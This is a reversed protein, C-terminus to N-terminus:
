FHKGSIRYIPIQKQLKNSGWVDYYETFKLYGHSILYQKAEKSGKFEDLFFTSETSRSYSVMDHWISKAEKEIDM